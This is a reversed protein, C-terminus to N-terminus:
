ENGASALTGLQSWTMYKAASTGVTGSNVYFTANVGSPQLAQQYGLTYSSITNNDFTLSVMTPTAASVAAPAAVTTVGAAVIVAFGGAALRTRKRQGRRPRWVQGQHKSGAQLM